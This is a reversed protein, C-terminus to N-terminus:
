GHGDLLYHFWEASGHQALASIALELEQLVNLVLVYTRCQLTLPSSREYGETAYIMLRLSTNIEGNSSRYPNIV